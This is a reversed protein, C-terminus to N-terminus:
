KNIDLLNYLEEDDELGLLHKLNTLAELFSYKSSINNMKSSKLMVEVELIESASMLGNQFRELSKEYLQRSYKVSLSSAKVQKASSILNFFASELALKIGREAASYEEDAKRKNYRAKQYSAFNDILPFVPLSASLALTKSDDYDVDSPSMIQNWSKNWSQSYSLNIIPLFNGSSMLVSKGAITKTKELAKLSNNQEMGIQIIQGVLRFIDDNESIKRILHEDISISNDIKFDQQINLYNKLDTFSIRYLTESQILETEKGALDAKLQLLDNNSIAGMQYCTEAINLNTKAIKVQEQSIELIDTTELLNFYKEEVTALTKLKQEKLYYETMKKSDHSIKYSLWIKGGTFLPQNISYGISRSNLEEIDFPQIGIRFTGKMQSQSGDIKASPLLGSLSNLENWKASQYAYKQALYEPNNELAIEKAKELTLVEAILFFGSFLIIIFVIKKM